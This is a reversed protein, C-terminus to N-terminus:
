VSDAVCQVFTVRGETVNRALVAARASMDPLVLHVGLGGQPTPGALATVYDAALDTM